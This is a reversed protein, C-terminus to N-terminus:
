STQMVLGEDRLILIFKNKIEIEVAILQNVKARYDEESIVGNEWANKLKGMKVQNLKLDETCGVLNETKKILLQKKTEFEQPTIAKIDLLEILIDLKENFDNTFESSSNIKKIKEQNLKLLKNHHAYKLLFYIAWVFLPIICAGFIAGISYSIVQMLGARQFMEYKDAFISILFFLSMLTVLRSSYYWFNISTSKGKKLIVFILLIIVALLILQQM